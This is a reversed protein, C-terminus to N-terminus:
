VCSVNVDIKIVIWWIIKQGLWSHVDEFHSLVNTMVLVKKM